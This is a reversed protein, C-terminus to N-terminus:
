CPACSAILSLTTSSLYHSVIELPENIRFYAAGESVDLHQRTGNLQIEAGIRTTIAPLLRGTLEAKEGVGWAPKVPLM